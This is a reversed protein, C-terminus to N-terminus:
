YSIMFRGRRNPLGRGGRGEGSIRNELGIEMTEKVTFRVTAPEMCKVMGCSFSCLPQKKGGESCPSNLGAISSLCRTRKCRGEPSLAGQFAPRKSHSGPLTSLSRDAPYVEKPRAWAPCMNCMAQSRWPILGTVSGEGKTLGTRHTGPMEETGPHGPVASVM